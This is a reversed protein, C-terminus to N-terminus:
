MWHVNQLEKKFTSPTHGTEQKFVTNFVSKSHFGADRFVAEITLNDYSPDTLLRKAENVRFENIFHNFNKNAFQNITQSVKKPHLQVLEALDIVTFNPNKYSGTETLINIIKDFDKQKSDVIVKSTDFVEFEAHVHSQKIGFISIWYVFLLSVLSDIFYVMNAADKIDFFLTSLQFLYVFLLLYAVIRIWHLNVKQTNSFFNLFKEHYNYIRKLTLFVFFLSFVNLLVGHIIFFLWYHSKHFASSTEYPMVFLTLMFLFELVGPILCIIIEKKKVQELLSKTYLYFLPMCFYYFGVPIFELNPFHERLGLNNLIYSINPSVYSVMFLGFFVLATKREKFLLLYSLVFVALAVALYRLIISLEYFNM